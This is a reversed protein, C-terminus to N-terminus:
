INMLQYQNLHRFLAVWRVRCHGTPAIRTIARFLALAFVLNAGVLAFALNMLILAFVPNMRFLAFVLNAGVLAFALSMLILAFVPNMRFLAFVLNAGVPAFALSMLILAFVPNM